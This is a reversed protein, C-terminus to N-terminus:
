RRFLMRCCRKINPSVSCSAYAQNQVDLYTKLEHATFQPGKDSVVEEQLGRSAVLGGGLVDITTSATTSRM